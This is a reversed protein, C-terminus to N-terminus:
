TRYGRSPISYAAMSGARVPQSTEGAGTYYPDSVSANCVQVPLAEHEGRVRPVFKGYMRRATKSLNPQAKTHSM